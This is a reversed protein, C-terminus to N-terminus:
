RANREHIVLLCWRPDNLPRINPKLLVFKILNRLSFRKPRDVSWNAYSRCVLRTRDNYSFSRFILDLPLSLSLSLFVSLPLKRQWSVADESTVIFEGVQLCANEASLRQLEGSHIGYSTLFKIWDETPSEHALTIGKRVSGIRVHNARTAENTSSGM